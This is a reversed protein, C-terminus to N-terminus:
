FRAVVIEASLPTNELRTTRLLLEFHSFARLGFNRKLEQMSKESTIFDVAAETAESTTGAIILASPDRETEPFFALTCYGVTDRADKTSAYVTQEGTRPNSNIVQAQRTTPDTVTHFNLRSDFIDVWPNSYDSGILIVNDSKLSEVRFRRAYEM